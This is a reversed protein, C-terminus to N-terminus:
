TPPDEEDNREASAAADHEFWRSFADLLTGETADAAGYELSLAEAAAGHDAQVWEDFADERDPMQPSLCGDPLHLLIRRLLAEHESSGLCRLGELASTFLHGTNLVATHLGGGGLESDVWIAAHITKPVGQPPDEISDPPLRLVSNWAEHARSIM